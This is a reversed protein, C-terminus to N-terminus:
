INKMIADFEADLEDGSHYVEAEKQFPKLWPHIKGHCDACLRIINEKFNLGGNQIQIIHHAITPYDGCAYCRSYKWKKGKPNSNFEQRTKIINPTYNYKKGAFIKLLEIRNFKSHKWQKWFEMLDRKLIKGFYYKQQERLIKRGGFYRM